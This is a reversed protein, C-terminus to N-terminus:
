LLGNSQLLAVEDESLTLKAGVNKQILQEEIEELERRLGIAQSELAEKEEKSLTQVSVNVKGYFNDSGKELSKRKAALLDLMERTSCTDLGEITNYYALKSQIQERLNMLQNVGVAENTQEIKRRISYRVGTLSLSNQIQETLRAKAASLENLAEEDSSSALISLNFELAAQKAAVSNIKSELKRAKRLNIEM